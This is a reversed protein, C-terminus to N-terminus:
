GSQLLSEKFKLFEKELTSMNEGVRTRVILFHQSDTFDFDIEDM